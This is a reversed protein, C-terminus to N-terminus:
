PTMYWDISKRPIPIWPMSGFRKPLPEANMTVRIGGSGGAAAAPPNPPPPPSWAAAPAIARATRVETFSHRVV